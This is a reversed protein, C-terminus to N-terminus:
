PHTLQDFTANCWALVGQTTALLLSGPISSSQWPIAGLDPASTYQVSAVYNAGNTASTTRGDRRLAQVALGTSNTNSVTPSNSAFFGGDPRQNAELWDLAEDAAASAGAALLSQAVIGTHDADLNSCNASWSYGGDLAPNGPAVCQKSTLWTVTSAPIGGTTRALAMIGLPQAFTSSNGIRGTDPGSTVILGRLITELNYAVPTGFSHINGGMVQVALMVKATGGANWFAGGGPNIYAGTVAELDTLADAAVATSGDSAALAFIVDAYMGAAYGGGNNTYDDETWTAAAAAESAYAPLPSSAGAPPTPVLALGTALAVVLSVTAILSRRRPRIPTPPHVM